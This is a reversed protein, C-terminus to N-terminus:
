DTYISAFLFLKLALFGGWFCTLIWWILFQSPHKWRWGRGPSWVSGVPPRRVRPQIKEGDIIRFDGGILIQLSFVSLLFEANEFNELHRGNEFHSGFCPMFFPHYFKLMTRYWWFKIHPYIIIDRISELCQFIEVPQWKWFSRWLYRVFEVNDSKLAMEYTPLNHHGSNIGTVDFIKLRDGNEFHGGCYQM